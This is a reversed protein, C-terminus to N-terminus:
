GKWMRSTASPDASPELKWQKSFMFSWPHSSEILWTYTCLGVDGLLISLYM